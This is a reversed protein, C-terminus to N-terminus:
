VLEGITFGRAFLVGGYQTAVREIETESTRDGRRLADVLQDILIPIGDEIDKAPPKPVALALFLDRTRGEILERHTSILELMSTLAMRRVEFAGASDYL